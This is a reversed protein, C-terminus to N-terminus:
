TFLVFSLLTYRSELWTKILKQRNIVFPLRFKPEVSVYGVALETFDAKSLTTPLEAADLIKNRKWVNNM